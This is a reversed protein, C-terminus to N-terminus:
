LCLPQPTDRLLTSKLRLHINFLFDSTISPTADHFLSLHQPLNSRPRQSRILGSFCLQSPIIELPPLLLQITLKEVRDECVVLLVM